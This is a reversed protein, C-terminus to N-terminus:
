EAILPLFDLDRSEYKDLIAQNFSEEKFAQNFADRSNQGFHNGVLKIDELAGNHQLAGVIAQLAPCSIDTYSLDISVLSSNTSIIRDLAVSAQDTFRNGKLNLYKLGCDSDGLSDALFNLGEAGIENRHLPLGLRINSSLPLTLWLNFCYRCLLLPRPSEPSDRHISLYVENEQM